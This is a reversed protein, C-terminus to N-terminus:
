NQEIFGFTTSGRREHRISFTEPAEIGIILIPVTLVDRLPILHSVYDEYVGIAGDFGGAVQMARTATVVVGVSTQIAKDVHNLESALVPKLLNWAISGSHNFAVEVSIGTSDTKGYPRSDSEPIECSKAFDLSWKGEGFAADRFIPAESLWGASMLETKLLQNISESISKKARGRNEYNYQFHEVVREESVNELSELIETLLDSYEPTNQLIQLAHRHSFNRFKM